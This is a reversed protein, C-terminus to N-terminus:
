VQDRKFLGLTAGQPDSLIAFKGGPFAQPPVMETAGAGIAKKFAADVDAVGFYVMWYSPVFAPAMPNMEMAGAINGGGFELQTYPPQGEGMPYENPKWGFVAKYFPLAKALGRANLEAWQFTNATGMSFGAMSIPQWASIFAGSPDQYVAMRGQDGVTMAPVVVTGGAAQVQASLEDADTTGIYLSWATPAEPMMKPGIGAVPSGGLFAQAYGGYQPDPSVEIKWGFVKSYFEHSAAPDSSALDVWIPKGVWTPKAVTATVAESM